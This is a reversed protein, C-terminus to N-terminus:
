GNLNWWYSVAWLAVCGIGIDVFAGRMSDGVFDPDNMAEPFVSRFYLAQVYASVMLVGFAIVVPLHIM